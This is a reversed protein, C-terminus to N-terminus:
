NNFNTSFFAKGWSPVLDAMLASRRVKNSHLEESDSNLKLNIGEVQTHTIM